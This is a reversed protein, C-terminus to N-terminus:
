KSGYSEHEQARIADEAAQAGAKLAAETLIKLYQSRSQDFMDNFECSVCFAGTIILLFTKKM